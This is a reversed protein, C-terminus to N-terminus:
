YVTVLTKLFSVIYVLVDCDEQEGSHVGLLAQLYTTTVNTSRSYGLENVFHVGENISSKNLPFVLKVAPTLFLIVHIM